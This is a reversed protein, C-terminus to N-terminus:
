ENKSVQTLRLDYNTRSSRLNIARSIEEFGEHQITLTYKAKELGDFAYRGTQGVLRYLRVPKGDVVGTLTVSAQFLSEMEPAVVKGSLSLPGLEIDRFADGVVEVAVTKGFDPLLIRYSGEALGKLTFSGDHLSEAYAFVISRDEPSVARLYVGAVPRGEAAVVGSLTHSEGFQFDVRESSGDVVEVSHSLRRSENTVISVRHTGDSVGVLEYSFNEDLNSEVNDAEVLAGEGSQLGRVEGHIRGLTGIVLRLGSVSEGDEIKVTQKESRGIDSIAWATYSGDDWGEFRFAGNEDSHTGTAGSAFEGVGFGLLVDAGVVPSGDASFVVGEISSQNKPTLEIEIPVEVNTVSHRVSRYGNAFAMLEGGSSPYGEITFEGKDDTTAIVTTLNFVSAFYNAGDTRRLQANVIPTKAVADVVRGSVEYLPDLKIAGFDFEERGVISFMNSAWTGYGPAHLSFRFSSSDVEVDLQGHANKKSFIAPRRNNRAARFEFEDVLEGTESNSITARMLTRHDVLILEVSADIKALVRQPESRRGDPSRATLDVHSNEAFPGIRFEGDIDFHLELSLQQESNISADVTGTVVSEDTDLIRGSIHVAKALRFNQELSEGDQEIRVDTPQSSMFGPAAAIVTNSGEPLGDIRFSGEEDVEWDLTTSEPMSFHLEHAYSVKLSADKIPDGEMSLVQGHVSGGASFEVLVGQDILESPLSLINPAVGRKLVVLTLNDRHGHLPLVLNNDSSQQWYLLSSRDTIDGKFLGYWIESGDFHVPAIQVALTPLEKEETPETADALQAVFLLTLVHLWVISLRLVM